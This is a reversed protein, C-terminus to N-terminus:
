TSNISNYISQREQCSRTPLTACTCQDINSASRERSTDFCAAQNKEITTMTSFDVNMEPHTPDFTVPGYYTKQNSELTAYTRTLHKTEQRMRCFIAFM